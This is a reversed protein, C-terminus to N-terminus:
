EYRMWYYYTYTYKLQTANQTVDDTIVDEANSMDSGQLVKWGTTNEFIVSTLRECGYFAWEGISTVSAPITISTLSPCDEFVSNGISILKSNNGFNVSELSTCVSFAGEGINELKSNNGFNVSTLNTCGRFAQTGISTVSDPMTISELSTCNRFAFKGISTVSAPITISELSPCDEFASEGIATVTKGSYKAPIIINSDTATGKKVSYTDDELFTFELGTTLPTGCDACKSEGKNLSHFNENIPLVLDQETIEKKYKDFYKNCESCKYYARVGEEACTAPVEKVLEGYIHASPDIEIEEYFQEKCRECTGSKSGKNQCTAPIYTENIDHGLAPINQKESLGCSCARMKEGAATCTAEKVTQWNGFSHIHATGEGYNNGSNSCAAFWIALCLASIVSLFAVILKRRMQIKKQATFFYPTSGFSCM